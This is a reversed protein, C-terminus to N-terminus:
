ARGGTPTSAHQDGGRIKAELTMHTQEMAYVKERVLQMESVQASIQHEFNETQRLQTDFEARIQDLLENLRASNSPARGGHRPPFVHVHSNVAPRAAPSQQRANPRSAAPKRAFYARAALSRIPTPPEDCDLVTRRPTITAPVGEFFSP